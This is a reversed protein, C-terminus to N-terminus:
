PARRSRASGIRWCTWAPRIWWKAPSPRCGTSTSRRWGCCCWRDTRTARRAGVDSKLRLRLAGRRARGAMRTSTRQWVRRSFPVREAPRRGASEVITRPCVPQPGRVALDVPDLLPREEPLLHAPPENM